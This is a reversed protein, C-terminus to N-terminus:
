GPLAPRYDIGRLMVKLQVPGALQVADLDAHVCFGTTSEIRIATKHALTGYYHTWRGEDAMQRLTSECQEAVKTYDDIEARLAKGPSLYNVALGATLFVIPMFASGVAEHVRVEHRTGCLGFHLRLRLNRLVARVDEPRQFDEFVLMWHVLDFMRPYGVQGDYVMNTDVGDRKPSGDPFTRHNIFLRAQQAENSRVKLTDFISDKVLRLVPVRQLQDAM